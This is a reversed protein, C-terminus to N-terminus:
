SRRPRGAGCTREPGAEARTRVQSTRKHFTVFAAPYVHDPKLAAEQEEHIARRLETMRDSCAPRPAPPRSPGM